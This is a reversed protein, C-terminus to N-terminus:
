PPQPSHRLGLHGRGGTVCKGKDQEKPSDPRAPASGDCFATQLPLPALGNGKRGAGTQATRRRKRPTGTGKRYVKPYYSPFYVNCDRETDHFWYDFP